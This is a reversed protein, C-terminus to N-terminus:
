NRCTKASGMDESLKCWLKMLVYLLLTKFFTAIDVTCIKTLIIYMYIYIYIYLYLVSNKISHYYLKNRAIILLTDTEMVILEQKCVDKREQDLSSRM